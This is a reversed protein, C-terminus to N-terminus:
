ALTRAICVNEMTSDSIYHSASRASVIVDQAEDNVDRISVTEISTVNIVQIPFPPPAFTGVPRCNDSRDPGAPAMWRVDIQIYSLYVQM